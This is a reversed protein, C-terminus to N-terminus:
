QSAGGSEGRPSPTEPNLPHGKIHFKAVCKSKNHGVRGCRYCVPGKKKRFPASSKSSSGSPVQTDDSSAQESKVELKEVRKELSKLSGKVDKIDSAIETLRKLAEDETGVSQQKSVPKASERALFEQEVRRVERFLEVYSSGSDLHYRTAERLRNDRLGSWFKTRLMDESAEATIVGQDLIQTMLDELRSGWVAVREGLGQQASYFLPFLQDKSLYSKFSDEFKALVRDLPAGEGLNRLVEAATGRVSHRVARAIAPQSYGESLLCRVEYRWQSYSLEGKPLEGKSVDGSFLAIRPVPGALLADPQVASQQALGGSPSLRMPLRDRSGLGLRDGATRDEQTDTDHSQSSALRRLLNELDQAPLKRLEQELQPLSTKSSVPGLMASELASADSSVAARTKLLKSDLKFDQGIALKLTEADAFVAFAILQVGAVESDSAVYVDEPGVSALSNVLDSETVGPDLETIVLTRTLYQTM